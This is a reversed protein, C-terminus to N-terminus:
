FEPPLPRTRLLVMAFVFFAVFFILTWGPMSLGLFVWQIEACEGSGSLVKRMADLLPLTDLLYDLGPGCEPVKDPPLHQLWLQRGAVAAGSLAALGILAGYIRRGALGPNHLFGALCVAAIGLVAIRQLICLPCPDLYMVYQFYLAAGMLAACVLFGLLFAARTTM